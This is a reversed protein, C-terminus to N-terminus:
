LTSEAIVSYFKNIALSVIIFEREFVGVHLDGLCAFSVKINIHIVFYFIIKFFIEHSCKLLQYTARFEEDNSKHTYTFLSMKDVKSYFLADFISLIKIDTAMSSIPICSLYNKSHYVTQLQRM